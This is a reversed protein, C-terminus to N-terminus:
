PSFILSRSRGGVRKQRCLNLFLLLTNAAVNLFSDRLGINLAENRDFSVSRLPRPRNFSPHTLFTPLLAKGNATVEREKQVCGDRRRDLRGRRNTPTPSPHCDLSPCESKRLQSSVFSGFIPRTGLLQSYM